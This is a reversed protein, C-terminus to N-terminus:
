EKEEARAKRARHEALLQTLEDLISAQDPQPHDTPSQPPGVYWGQQEAEMVLNLARRAWGSFKGQGGAHAYWAERESPKARMRVSIDKVDKPM